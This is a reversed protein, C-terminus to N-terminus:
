RRRRKAPGKAARAALLDVAQAMTVDEVPVDKPVNANTKGDTVYAGYRGDLVRV